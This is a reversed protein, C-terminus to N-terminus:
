AGAYLANFRRGVAPNSQMRTNWGGVAAEWDPGTVGKSAAIDAATSQDDGVAALGKSIEAYLELSVGGIPEYDPGTAPGDAAAVAAQQHALAAQQGAAMQQAQASVQQAQNIMDPTAAVVSHLDKLQRFVGM